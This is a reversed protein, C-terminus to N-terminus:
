WIKFSFIKVLFSTIHRFMIMYSGLSKEISMAQQQNNQVNAANIQICFLWLLRRNKEKYIRGYTRLM